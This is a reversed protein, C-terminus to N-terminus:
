AEDQTHIFAALTQGNTPILRRPTDGVSKLRDPPTNEGVAAIPRSILFHYLPPWDSKYGAAEREAPNAPMRGNQAIFQAYWYHAWEDAGRGIPVVVSYGATLVLYLFLVVILKRNRFTESLM